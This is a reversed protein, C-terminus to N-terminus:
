LFFFHKHAGFFSHCFLNEGKLTHCTKEVEEGSINPSLYNKTTLSQGTCHMINILM